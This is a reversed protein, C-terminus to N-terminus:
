EVETTVVRLVDKERRQLLNGLPELTAWYVVGALVALGASVFLNILGSPIGGYEEGLMGALPPIFIPILFLPFLSHTLFLMFKNTGPMKTPKLSGIAIRYPFLTSVTNGLVSFLLFAAVLQLLSAAVVAASMRTLCTLVALFLLGGGLAVPVFAVNKALLIYHRKVPLLVLSRFGDRDFGFLNMMAQLLGMCQFAIVGTAIFPKIKDPQPVKMTQSFLSLAFIGLVIVNMALAMKFEPARSLSRLFVWALVSAEEPVGPVTREVWTPALVETGANKPKRKVPKATDGGQYFRMTSRYARRLGLSGLLWVAFAGGVAPWPNKQALEMAGYPAWLFPVYQHAMLFGEPMKHRATPATEGTAISPPQTQRPRQPSHRLLNFYLNPLQTLIMFVLTIIVIVSRRRRQNVMLAILWGRLCYTWATIMFLTGLTLPVLWLMALGKSLALGLSLGLMGPVFLVTSLTLHSALYNVFFVGELSIPLHLLRGLDITESRQLEVVVGLGWFLLFLGILGDYVGLLVLPQAQGLAFAGVLIGAIGGGFGIMVGFVTFILTLMANLKGTRAWQNRTLCWRLWLVTWLQSWNM